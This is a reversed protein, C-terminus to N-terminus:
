NDTVLQFAEEWEARSSAIKVWVDRALGPVKVGHFLPECGLLSPRTTLRSPAWCNDPIRTFRKRLRPLLTVAAM